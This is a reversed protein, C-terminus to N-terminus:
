QQAALCEDAFKQNTTAFGAQESGSMSQYTRAGEGTLRMLDTLIDPSSMGEKGGAAMALAKAQDMVDGSAPAGTGSTLAHLGLARFCQRAYEYSGPAANTIATEGGNSAGGSCAALPLFTAAVIVTGWARKSLITM